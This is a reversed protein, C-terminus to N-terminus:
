ADHKVVYYLLMFGNDYIKKDQLELNKKATSGDFLSIGSGMIFPNVKVIMEDIEPLLTLALSAGGCLWIDKGSQKKLERAFEVPNESVLQVGDDQSTKMSRSVVYQDLHPYPSTVGIELGIQYTKRGMLVADFHKNPGDVGLQERLHGPIAEPFERLLDAFHEGGMDFDDLAGNERSIFGDLSCAIYYVLKRM